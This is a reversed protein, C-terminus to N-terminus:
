TRSHRAVSAVLGLGALTVTLSSGGASVLPLTVGTIPMMKLVAGLNIIAQLMFQAIVGGALLRGFNDRANIVIRVGIFALLGILFVVVFAGVLGTEEGIIAFIFDTHANPLYLWKSRSAGFGLGFWGGSSLAMLGQEVQYGAGLPQDSANIFALLRDRRYPELVMVILGLVSGVGLGIALPRNPAGALWVMAFATAATILTTGFDPQIVILLCTFGVPFLLALMQKNDNFHAARRALLDALFVILILKAFESPQITFGGIVLWRQAGYKAAGAVAVLFLMGWAALLAIYSLGKWRRYDVRSLLVMAVMGLVAWVLQRLFPSFASQGEVASSVSGASLVMLLGFLTLFVSILM